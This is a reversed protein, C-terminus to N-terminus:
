LVLIAPIDWGQTRTQQKIVVILACVDSANNIHKSFRITATAIALSCVLFEGLMILTYSLAAAASKIMLGHTEVEEGEELPAVGM